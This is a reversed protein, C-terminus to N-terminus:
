GLKDLSIIGDIGGDGSGGVRRLDERSTGYGMAHLVELVRSELSAAPVRALLDLLEHVVSARLEKRADEIREEPSKLSNSLEDPEDGGMKKGKGAGPAKRSLFALRAIEDGSM